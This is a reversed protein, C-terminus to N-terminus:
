YKFRYYLYKIVENQFTVLGAETQWWNSTSYEPNAIPEVEVTAPGPALMKRFLWRVRRPHFDETPIIVSNARTQRRVHPLSYRVM